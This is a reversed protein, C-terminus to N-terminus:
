CGARESDRHTEPQSRFGSDSLVACAEPFETAAEPRHMRIGM